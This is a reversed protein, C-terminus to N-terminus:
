RLALRVAIDEMVKRIEPLQGADKAIKGVGDVIKRQTQDGYGLQQQAAPLAFTGKVSNFLQPGMAALRKREYEEFRKRDIAAGDLGGPGGPAMAKGVLGSLEARADRAAQELRPNTAFGKLVDAVQDAALAGAGGGVGAGILAGWPGFRAGIGGGKLAGLLGGLLV